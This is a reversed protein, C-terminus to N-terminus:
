NLTHLQLGDNVYIYGHVGGTFVRPERYHFKSPFVKKSKIKYNLFM